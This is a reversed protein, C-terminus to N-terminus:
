YHWTVDLLYTINGASLSLQNPFGDDFSRPVFNIGGIIDNADFEDWDVTWITFQAQPNSIYWNVNFLLNQGANQIYNSSGSCCSSGYAVFVDPGSTLDWGAGGDTQPYSVVRVRTITLAYPTIQTECFEGVYGDPCDCNGSICLGGNQCIIGACPDNATQGNSNNSLDNTEDDKQCGVFFLSLLLFFLTIRINKM